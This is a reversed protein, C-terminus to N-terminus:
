MRGSSNSRVIGAGSGDEIMLRGQISELPSIVSPQGHGNSVEDRLSMDQDEPDRVTFQELARRETLVDIALSTCNGLSGTHCFRAESNRVSDPDPSTEEQLSLSSISLLKINM